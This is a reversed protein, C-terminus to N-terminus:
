EHREERQRAAGGCLHLLAAQSAQLLRGCALGGAKRRLLGLRRLEACAGVLQPALVALQRRAQRGLLLLQATRRRLVALGPAHTRASAAATKHTHAAAHMNHPPAAAAHMHTCAVDMCTWGCTRVCVRSSRHGRGHRERAARTAVVQQALQALQLAPERGALAHALRRLALLPQGRRRRRELALHWTRAPRLAACRARQCVRTRGQMRHQPHERAGAAAAGTGAPGLLVWGDTARERAAGTCVRARTRACAHVAAHTVQHAHGVALVVQRHRHDHHDVQVRHDHVAAVGGEAADVEELGVLARTHRAHTNTAHTHAHENCHAKGPWTCRM